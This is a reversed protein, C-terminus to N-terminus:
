MLSKYLPSKYDVTRFSTGVGVGRYHPRVFFLAAGTATLAVSTKLVGQDIGKPNYGLSSNLQDIGFYLVGITMLLTGLKSVRGRREGKPIGMKKIKNFLITDSSTIVSFEQLEILRGEKHLGNKLILHVYAGEAYRATVKGGHVLVLQKQAELLYPVALIFILTYPIRM